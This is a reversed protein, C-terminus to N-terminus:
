IHILSLIQLIRDYHSWDFVARASHKASSIEKLIIGLWVDTSIAEAGIEKAKRCQKAFQDFEFQSRMSNHDHAEGVNLPGMVFMTPIEKKM